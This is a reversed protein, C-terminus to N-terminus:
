EIMLLVYRMHVNSSFAWQQVIGGLILILNVLRPFEQCLSKFQSATNVSGTYLSSSCAVVTIPVVSRQCLCQRKAVRLNPPHRCM